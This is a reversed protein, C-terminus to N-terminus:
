WSCDQAYAEILLRLWMGLYTLTTLILRTNGLVPQKAEMMDRVGAERWEEYDGHCDQNRALM